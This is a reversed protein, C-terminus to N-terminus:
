PASRDVAPLAALRATLAPDAASGLADLAARAYGRLTTALPAFAQEFRARYPELREAGDVSSALAAAADGAGLQARALAAHSQAVAPEFADPADHALADRLTWALQAAAVAEPYRGAMTLLTSVNHSAMALDGAYRDFDHEVLARYGMLSEHAAAMGEAVQGLRIHAAALNNLAMALVPIADPSQAALPRQAAIAKRLPDVAEAARGLETLRVGVNQLSMVLHPGHTVADRAALTQWATLAENAADLAEERRGLEGLVNGYNNLTLALDPLCADPDGDALSRRLALSAQITTLAEERQGMEGLALALNHLSSGLLRDHAGPERAALERFRTTADRFAALAEARLGAESQRLGLLLAETALSLADADPTPKMM